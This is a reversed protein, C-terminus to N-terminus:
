SSLEFMEEWQWKKGLSKWHNKIAQLTIAKSHAEPVNIIQCKNLKGQIKRNMGVQWTATKKWMGEQKKPGYIKLVQYILRTENMRKNLRHAWEQLQKEFSMEEKLDKM